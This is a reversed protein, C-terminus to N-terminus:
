EDCTSSKNPNLSVDKKRKKKEEFVPTLFLFLLFVATSVNM